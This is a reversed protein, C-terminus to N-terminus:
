CGSVQRQAAHIRAMFDPGATKRAARLRAMREARFPSWHQGARKMRVQLAHKHASEIIGSGTPLGRRRFEDYCIMSRHNRLYRMLDIIAERKKGQALFACASLEDLVTDIDGSWILDCARRRWLEVCPDTDGFIANATAVIHEVVHPWDLVQTATPFLEDALNKIWPAGDGVIVVEAAHEVGAACAAVWLRSKLQEVDTAAVYAAQTVAGRKQDTGAMHHEDRVIVGLKVEKWGERTSVMSGDVGITIRQAPTSPPPQLAQQLADESLSQLADAARDIVRRVLNESISWGYHLSFREAAEEFVDSVGFDAIRREVESTLEGSAPIGLEEDLPSFGHSCGKCRYWHRRYTHEGSLTRVTRAQRKVEVYATKGCKPCRVPHGSERGCREELVRAMVSSGLAAKTREIALEMSTMDELASALRRRALESILDGDSLSSLDYQSKSESM